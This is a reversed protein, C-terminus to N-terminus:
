ITGKHDANEKLSTVSINDYSDFLHPVFDLASVSAYGITRSRYSKVFM